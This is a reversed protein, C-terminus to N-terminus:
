SSKEILISVPGTTGGKAPDTRMATTIAPETKSFTAQVESDSVKGLDVEAMQMKGPTFKFSVKYKGDKSVEGILVFQGKMTSIKYFGEGTPNKQLSLAQSYFLAKMYKTGINIINSGKDVPL